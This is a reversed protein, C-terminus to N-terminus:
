APTATVTGAMYGVISMPAGFGTPGSGCPDVCAWNYNGPKAIRITFTTRAAGLIPVNIGLSPITFTHSVVTSNIADVRRTRGAAVKPRAVRIPVIKMHDGVVGTVRSYSRLSSPLPTSGDLNTVTVTVSRNSPISFSAPEFAPLNHHPGANTVIIIHLSQGSGLTASVPGATQLATFGPAGTMFLGAIVAAALLPAGCALGFVWMTADRRDRALRGIASMASVGKRNTGTSCRALASRDALVGRAVVAVM